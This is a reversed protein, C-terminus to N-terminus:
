PTKNLIPKSIHLVASSDVDNGSSGVECSVKNRDVDEEADVQEATELISKAENLVEIQFERTEDELLIDVAAVKEAMTLDKNDLEYITAYARINVYKKNKAIIRESEYFMNIEEKTIGSYHPIIAM